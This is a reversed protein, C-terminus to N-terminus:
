YPHWHRPRDPERLDAIRRRVEAAIEESDGAKQALWCTMRLERVARLVQYRPLRTVDFGYVECFREYEADTHWGLDRYVATIALDWEPPGWCLGELDFLVVEGSSTKLVNGINADGHIVARPLEYVVDALEERLTRMLTRLTLRDAATLAPASEMQQGLREFPELEPLTLDPPPRLAHLRRLVVALDAPVTWDGEVAYWLSVVTGAAICPQEGELPRTVTLGEATLWRAVEVERRSSDLRDLSRAVRAIIRGEALRLVARDGIRVTEPNQDGVGARQAAERAAELAIDAFLLPQRM